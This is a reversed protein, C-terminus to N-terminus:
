LFSGQGHTGGVFFFCGQGLIASKGWVEWQRELPAPGLWQIVQEAVGRAGEKDM